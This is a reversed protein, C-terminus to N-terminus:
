DTGMLHYSQTGLGCMRGAQRVAKGMAAMKVGVEGGRWGFGDRGGYGKQRELREWDKERRDM